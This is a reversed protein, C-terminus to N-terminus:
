TDLGARVPAPRHENREPSAPPMVVGHARGYVFKRTKLSQYQSLTDCPTRHLTVTGNAPDDGRRDVAELDDGYEVSGSIPKPKWALHPKLGKWSSIGM